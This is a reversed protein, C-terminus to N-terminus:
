LPKRCTVHVGLGPFWWLSRSEFYCITALIDKFVKLIRIKLSPKAFGLYGEVSHNINKGRLSLLTFFVIEIIQQFIHDGWIIKLDKFGGKYFFDKIEALTFHNPHAGYIEKARWGLKLLIGEMSYINGEAPIFTNYVGGATLVRKAEKIAKTPFEVHELVDMCAVADFYNDKFPLNEAEAVKFRGQKIRRKAQSIAEKSIDVGYVELDPRYFKVAEVFDGVGCGVDLVRGKVDKLARLLHLLRTARFYIPTLRIKEGGWIKEEYNFLYGAM